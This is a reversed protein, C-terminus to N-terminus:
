SCERDEAEDGGSEAVAFVPIDGHPGVALADGGGCRILDLIKMANERAKTQVTERRETAEGHLLLGTKILNVVDGPRTFDMKGARMTEKAGELAEEVIQMSELKFQATDKVVRQSVTQLVVSKVSEEDAMVRDQWKWKQSWSDVTAKPRGIETAVKQVSRKDGMSAYLAYAKIQEPTERKPRAL